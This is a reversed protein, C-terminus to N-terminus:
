NGPEGLKPVREFDDFMRETQELFPLISEATQGFVDQAATGDYRFWSDTGSGIRPQVRARQKSSLDWTRIKDPAIVKGWHTTFGEAPCQGIEIVFGGGHRDFQFTL